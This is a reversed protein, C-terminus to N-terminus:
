PEHILRIIAVIAMKTTNPTLLNAIAHVVIMKMSTHVNRPSVKMGFTLKM